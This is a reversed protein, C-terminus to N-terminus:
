LLQQAIGMAQLFSSSFVVESIAGIFDARVKSRFANVAKFLVWCVEFPFSFSEEIETVSAYFFGLM